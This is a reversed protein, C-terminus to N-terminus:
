PKISLIKDFRYWRDATKGRTIRVIQVVDDGVEAVTDYSEKGFASGKEIQLFGTGQFFTVTLQKGMLSQLLTATSTM